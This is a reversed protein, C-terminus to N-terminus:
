VGRGVREPQKGIPDDLTIGSTDQDIAQPAAPKPAGTAAPTDIHKIM